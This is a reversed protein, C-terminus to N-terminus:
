PWGPFIQSACTQVGTQLGTKCQPV